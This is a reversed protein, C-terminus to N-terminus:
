TRRAAKSKGSRVQLQARELNLDFKSLALVEEPRMGQNLMLRGLDSLDQHKAAAAFYQKEEEASLVHMRVANVDSPIDVRELPNNRAWRQKMAYQFFTSLAHLDHRVTVDRVQHENVRWTKYAEIRGEDIMSVPESKFFALASALSVGIRRASNPHERYNVKAWELFDPVASNFERVVIRPLLQRGELLTKRHEAEILLAKSHERKTADLDTTGAYNRGDLRFRYYWKGNRERLGM